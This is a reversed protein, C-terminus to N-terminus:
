KESLTKTAIKLNKMVECINAFLVLFSRIRCFVEIFTVALNKPPETFGSATLQM